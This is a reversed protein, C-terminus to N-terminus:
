ETRPAAPTNLTYLWFTPDSTSPFPPGEIAPSSLYPGLQARWRALDVAAAEVVWENGPAAQSVHRWLDRYNPVVLIDGPRPAFDHGDFPRVELKPMFFRMVLLEDPHNVFSLPAFLVPPAGPRGAADLATLGRGLQTAVPASDVWVLPSLYMAGFYLWGNYVIVSAVLIAAAAHRLRRDVGAATAREWCSVAGLAALAYLAPTAEM